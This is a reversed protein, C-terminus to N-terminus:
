GTGLKLLSFSNSFIKLTSIMSKDLSHVDILSPLGLRQVADICCVHFTDCRLFAITMRCLDRDSDVHLKTSNQGVKPM